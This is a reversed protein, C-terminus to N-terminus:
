GASAATRPSPGPQFRVEGDAIVAVMGCEEAILQFAVTAPVASFSFAVVRDAPLAEPNAIKLGASAAVRQAAERVPMRDASASVAGGSEPVPPTFRVKTRIRAPVATGNETLPSYIRSAFIARADEDSFVGAPKSSEVRADVVRGQDSLRVLVQAEGAAAYRESHSAGGDPDIYVGDPGRELRRPPDFEGILVGNDARAISLAVSTPNGYRKGDIDLAIANGPVWPANGADLRRGEREVRWELRPAAAKGTVSAVFMLVNGSQAMEGIGLRLVGDKGSFVRLTGAPGRGMAGNMVFLAAPGSRTTVDAYLVQGELRTGLSMPAQAAREPQLAWAAYGSSLLLGAVAIVGLRLRARGPLPKKLMLIREKLSQSSQWHCGVPLGLAALQTKLMADAYARRSRPHRALVAADCALEQDQRYARAAVHLVPNFWHACRMAVALLNLRADQHALHMREHALVLEGQRASYRQEFDAPLVIRPRLAGVVAPCGTAAASRLLGDADPRLRGLSAIYRKQQRWFLAAAALAGLLWAVVLAEPADFAFGPAAAPLSPMAVPMARAITSTPSLASAAYERVPAPLSVALLSVPVLAWATYAVSAGFLRGLPRRLAIVLLSAATAALTSELLWGLLADTNM